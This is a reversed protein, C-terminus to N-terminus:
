TEITIGANAAQARARAFTAIATDQVGTGTLDCITIAADSTRGAAKGSVIAGLDDFQTGKTVAGAALAARLEGMLETQSQRDPVYLDAKALCEPALESKHSQDSGMATVHQGPQLWEASILPATSPTTTVIVDTQSVAAPLDSAPLVEIGLQKTMQSAANSAKEPDRAWILAKRIPRVLCLAQLQLRAQTGAGVICASSAEEPALHRAAVAGAAATRIDTLYGNDLLLAEVMGTKASFLIMLGSTSPLGIKPNDFFGPSVKIAFSDIGPVYATKVDVEGNFQAIDMSLIPPMVVGGSALAAFGRAVKDIATLDLQVAKRLEDETLISIDPM